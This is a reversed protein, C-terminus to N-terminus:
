LGATALESNVAVLDNPSQWNNPWSGNTVPPCQQALADVFARPLHPAIVAVPLGAAAAALALAVAVPFFPEGAEMTSGDPSLVTATGGPRYQAWGQSVPAFIGPVALNFVGLDPPLSPVFDGASNYRKYVQGGTRMLQSLRQDGPKPSAFTLCRSESRPSSADSTQAHLLQAVGGGMSHGVFLIQNDSPVLPGLAAGITNASAIYSSMSSIKPGSPTATSWDTLANSFVQDLWQGLQTTGSIVVIAGQPLRLVGYGPSAAPGNAVFTVPYTAPLVAYAARRFLVDSAAYTARALTALWYIVRPDSLPLESVFRVQESPPLAPAIPVPPLPPTVAFGLVAPPLQGPAPPFPPSCPIGM